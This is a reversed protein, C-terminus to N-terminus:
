RLRGAEEDSLDFNALRLLDGLLTLSIICNPDNCTQRHEDALALANEKLAQRYRDHALAQLRRM